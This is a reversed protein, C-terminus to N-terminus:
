ALIHAERLKGLFEKVDARLQPEEVDYEELLTRVLAEEDPADPLLEWIRAGVENLGAMGHFSEATEGVPVLVYEDLIQRLVFQQQIQM